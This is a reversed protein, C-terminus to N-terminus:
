ARNPLRFGFVSRAAPAQSRSLGPPLTLLDANRFDDGSIGATIMTNRIETSSITPIWSDARALARITTTL